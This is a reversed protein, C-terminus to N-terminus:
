EAAGRKSIREHNRSKCQYMRQDAEKVLDAIKGKKEEFAVIGYSFSINRIEGNIDFHIPSKELIENLREQIQEPELASLILFEDGAYRYLLDQRDMACKMNEAFCVLYRDGNEHGYCDNILKLYDLDIFVLSGKKHNKMFRKSNHDFAARNLCGTLADKEMSVKLREIRLEERTLLRVMQDYNEKEQELSELYMREFEPIQRRLEERDIRCAATRMLKYVPCFSGSFNRANKIYNGIRIIDDWREEEAMVQLFEGFYCVCFSLTDRAGEGAEMKKMYSNFEEAIAAKDKQQYLRLYLDTFEKQLLFFAAEFFLGCDSFAAVITNYVSKLPSRLTFGSNAYKLGYEVIKPPFGLCFYLRVLALYLRSKEKSREMHVGAERCIEILPYAYERFNYAFIGYSIYYIEETYVTFDSIQKLEEVCRAVDEKTWTGTKVKNKIEEVTYM